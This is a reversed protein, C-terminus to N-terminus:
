NGQERRGGAAGRPAFNGLVRGALGAGGAGRAAGGALGALGRAAGGPAQGMGGLRGLMGCGTSMSSAVVLFVVVMAKVFGKAKNM